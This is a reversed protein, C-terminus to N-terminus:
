FQKVIKVSGKESQIIYVGSPLQSLNIGTTASDEVKGSAVLLGTVSYIRIVGSVNWVHLMGLPDIYAAPKAAAAAKAVATGPGQESGSAPQTTFTLSKIKDFNYTRNLAADSFIVSVAGDQVVIEGGEFSFEDTINSGSSSTHLITLFTEQAQTYTTLM